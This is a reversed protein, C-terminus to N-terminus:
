EQLFEVEGNTLHYYGGVVDIKKEEMLKAIVPTKKLHAVTMRVNTKIANELPDGKLKKSAHVAPELMKGVNPIDKTKNALAADVAGCKAHGLVVIISSNLVLASFDLSDLELPGAVNGAVRVIFLDGIGQDFLIEPPVRSDSCGLIAAFPKQGEVLPERSEQDRNPHLLQNQVFRQNGQILRNLAARPSITNNEAANMQQSMLFIALGYIFTKMKM